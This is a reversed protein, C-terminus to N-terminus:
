CKSSQLLLNVQNDMMITKKKSFDHEFTDFIIM